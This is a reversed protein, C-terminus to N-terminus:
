AVKYKSSFWKKNLLHAKWNEWIFVYLHNRYVCFVIFMRMLAVAYKDISGRQIDDEQFKEYM